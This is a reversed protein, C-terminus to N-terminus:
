INGHCVFLISILLRGKPYPVCLQQITEAYRLAGAFVARPLGHLRYKSSRECELGNIM